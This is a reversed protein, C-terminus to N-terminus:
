PRSPWSSFTWGRLLSSTNALCRRSSPHPSSSTDRQAQSLLEVMGPDRRECWGIGRVLTGTLPSSTVMTDSSDLSSLLLSSESNQGPQLELHESNDEPLTEGVHFCPLTLLVRWRRWCAEWFAFLVKFTVMSLFRPGPMSGARPLGRSVSRCHSPRPCRAPSQHLAARRPLM